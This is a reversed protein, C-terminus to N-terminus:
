SEIKSTYTESLGTRSFCVSQKAVFMLVAKTQESSLMQEGFTLTQKAAEVLDVVALEVIKEVFAVLENIKEM